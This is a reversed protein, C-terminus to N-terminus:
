CGDTIVPQITCGDPCDAEKFARFKKKGCIFCGEYHKIHAPRGGYLETQTQKSLGNYYQNFRVVAKEARERSLSTHVWGCWACTVLSM